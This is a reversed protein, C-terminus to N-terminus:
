ETVMVPDNPFTRGGREVRSQDVPISCQELLQHPGATPVPAIQGRRLRLGALPMRKRRPLFVRTGPGRVTGGAHLPRHADRRVPM